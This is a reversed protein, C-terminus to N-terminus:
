TKPAAPIQNAYSVSCHKRGTLRRRVVGPSFVVLTCIHRLVANLPSCVYHIRGTPAAHGLVVSTHNHANNIISLTNCYANRHIGMDDIASSFEVTSRLLTNRRLASDGESRDKNLPAPYPVVDSVERSFRCLRAHPSSPVDRLMCDDVPGTLNWGRRM